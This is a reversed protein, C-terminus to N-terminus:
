HPKEGNMLAQLVACRLPPISDFAARRILRFDEETVQSRNMLVAWGRGIQALEQPLRTNSEAQAQGDIEREPIPISV